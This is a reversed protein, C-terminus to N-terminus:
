LSYYMWDEKTHLSMMSDFKHLADNSLIYRIKKINIFDKYSLHCGDAFAKSLTDFVHQLRTIKANECLAESYMAWIKLTDIEDREESTFERKSEM